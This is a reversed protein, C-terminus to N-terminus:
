RLTVKIMNGYCLITVSCCINWTWDATNNGWMNTSFNGNFATTNGVVLHNYDDTELNEALAAAQCLTMLLALLLAVWKKMKMIM